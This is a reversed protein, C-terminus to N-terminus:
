DPFNITSCHTLKSYTIDPCKAKINIGMPITEAIEKDMFHIRESGDSGYSSFQNRPIVSLLILLLIKRKM